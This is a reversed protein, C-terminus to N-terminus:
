TPPESPLRSALSGASRPETETADQRLGCQEIASDAAGILRAADHNARRCRSRHGVARAVYAGTLPSAVGDRLAGALTAALATGVNGTAGTIAIRM